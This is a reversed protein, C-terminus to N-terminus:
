GMSKQETRMIIEEQLAPSLHNFYDSYGAVRVILDRYETPNKQAKRLEEASIVNFQIHHGDKAFYGRVLSAMNSIGQAGEALSPSFKQNLLTGGTKIHDMKAASNIVATPGLRDAGQVPSIGESLPTGRRRGDPTAGIVSGFYVHSTTPLMNIRYQGGKYNPRGDVLSFFLLFVQKMIDDARDDDNGYKPTKNMVLQRLKEYGHFDDELALVLESLDFSQEEFVHYKIASLSDTITGIGVGQIYSTNYRAGGANYDQAKEICDEVLVSLFPCPMEKAYLEEIIDNGRLKIALFHGLQAEYARILKEFSDLESLEGTKVGIEKKTRTDVGNYLTIELIKVLNVYGTLIYSEKGFAGTEVCGSNGGARADELSKGQRLLEMVVADSNFISPQGKGMRIVELAKRLFAEPSRKSLQICSSPQTISMEDIVELLLFSVENVGDTGDEKLGGVNINAFDTYTGSEKLTIGVKPPAPQNNFKVWFCQLLERASERNLTGERVEKEYFPYLHQCLRGPSYADWTNLETIVGLHIFWYSQLAEAFTRPAYAPVWACREAIAELEEKRAPETEKRALERAEESHRKAFACIGDIAIRMAKLEQIKEQEKPDLSSLRTQIKEKLELLGLTFIRKDAVTHGPARQEMFETFIGAEYCEHWAPEMAKLIKDRMARERWFPLIEEEQITKVEESVTFSITEREHVVELDAISHCCLEPYTPTEKPRPGREGVILEWDNICITKNEMMHQFALARLLPTSVEGEYKKYAETVLQAREITIAPIAALSQERLVQVRKRM